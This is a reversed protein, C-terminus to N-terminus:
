APNPSSPQGIVNISTMHLALQLLHQHLMQLRLASLQLHSAEGSGQFSGDSPMVPAEARPDFPKRPKDEDSEEKLARRPKGGDTRQV